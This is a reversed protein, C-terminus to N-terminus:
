CDGNIFCDVCEIVSGRLAPSEVAFNLLLKTLAVVLFVLFGVIIRKILTKRGNAIDDEKQSAMAKVLDIIGFIVLLVPVLIQMATVVISTFMPIRRPISTISGCEATEGPNLWSSASVVDTFVYFAVLALLLCFLVKKIQHRFM